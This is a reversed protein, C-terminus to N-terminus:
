KPREVTVFQLRREGTCAWDLDFSMLHLGSDLLGSPRLCERDTPLHSSIRSVNTKTTQLRLRGQGDILAPM